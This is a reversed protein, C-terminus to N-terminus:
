NAASAPKPKPVLVLLVVVPVMIIAGAMYPAGFAVQAYLPGAMAPGVMRGLASASQFWGMVAGREDAAATMSVLSSLGPNIFGAGVAFVALALYVQWLETAMAFGLMSACFVSTAFIVLAKEGFIPALKGILFGQVVVTIAGMLMFMKGIETPGSAFLEYVWLPYISEMMAMSIFFLFTIVLLRLLVPRSKLSPRPKDAASSGGFLPKRDAPALSEPLIFIAGLMAVISAITAALAPLLFNATEMDNGALYGGIAPGLMFGLGLAASVMGMGGGRTKEDTIDTVYAFAAAINGAMLGGFIRSALLMWLEDAYGLMLYSGASGLMTFVLVPKRGYADSLRGWLPAAIFQGMSYASVTLTIIEPSADLRDAYFPFLPLTIGFGALGIFVILFLVLL